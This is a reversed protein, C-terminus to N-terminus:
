DEGTSGAAQALVARLIEPAHESNAGFRANIELVRPRGQADRRIDLDAPGTLGLARVAEVAVQAVDEAEGRELRRVAAANGVRGEKLATKEVVVVTEPGDHPVHVMPAYETGPAFAQLIQSDDCAEWDLEQALEVLRVGRGGRASRPKVILSGGFRSLAEQPGPLESPLAFAPVPVGAAQLARATELKDHAAAVGAVPGIVVPAGLRRQQAAEAVMPLEDAVTPIVLDIRHRRVLEALVALMSPDSAAPVTEIAEWASDDAPAMDAGILQHDMHRLQALLARGAPGASGTILIRM